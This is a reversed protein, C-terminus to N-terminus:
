ILLRCILFFRLSVEWGDWGSGGRLLDFLLVKSLFKPNGRRERHTAAALHHDHM